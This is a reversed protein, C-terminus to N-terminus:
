LFISHNFKAYHVIEPYFKQSHIYSYFKLTLYSLNIFTWRSSEIPNGIHYNGPHWGYSWHQASVGIAFTLLFSKM